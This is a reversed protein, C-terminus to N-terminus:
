SSGKAKNVDSYWLLLNGIEVGGVKKPVMIGHAVAGWCSCM